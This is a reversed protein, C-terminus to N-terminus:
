RPHIMAHPPRTRGSSTLSRGRGGGTLDHFAPLRRLPALGPDDRLVEAPAGRDLACRVADLAERDRGELAFAQARAVCVQAREPFIRAAVELVALADALRGQRILVRPEYFSTQVYIHELVRAAALAGAPDSTDAAEAQLGDLGVEAAIRDPNVGVGGMRVDFLLSGLREVVAWFRAKLAEARVLEREVVPLSRLEEARAQATAFDDALADWERWASLTDGGAEMARAEATWAGYLSDLLAADLPRLGARMARLEMWAVADDLARAPAWEHGGDFVTVRNAMGHRDLVAELMRMEDHNFDRTGVLGHFALEPHQGLPSLDAQYMPQPMGGGVGIIGALHGTLRMGFNWAKRATGSFGILYLRRADVAFLDQADDLMAGLAADNPDPGLFDSETDYSSMVIWGYREAPGALRELPVLARGRPDMAFLVPWPRSPDYAAPLYAAWSKTTDAASVVREIVVGMPLRLGPRARPPAEQASAPAAALCVLALLAIPRPVL